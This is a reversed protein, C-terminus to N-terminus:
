HASSMASTAAHVAATAAKQGVEGLDKKEQDVASQLSAFHSDIFGEYQSFLPFVLRDYLFASHVGNGRVLLYACLCKILGFLPIECLLWDFLEYVLVVLSLMVWYKGWQSLEEKKDAKLAKFSLYAPFVFSLFLVVIMSGIGKALLTIAILLILIFVAGPPAGTKECIIRVIERKQAYQTFAEWM